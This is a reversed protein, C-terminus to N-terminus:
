FDAARDLQAVLANVADDLRAFDAVAHAGTRSRRESTPVVGVTVEGHFM